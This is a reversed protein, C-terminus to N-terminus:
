PRSQRRSQEYLLYAGLGILVLPWLQMIAFFSSLGVMV